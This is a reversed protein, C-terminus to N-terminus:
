PMLSLCSPSVNWMALVIGPAGGCDCVSGALCSTSVSRSGVPGVRGLTDESKLERLKLQTLRRVDRQWGNWM